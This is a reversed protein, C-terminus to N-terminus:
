RAQRSQIVIGSNKMFEGRWYVGGSWGERQEGGFYFRVRKVQNSACLTNVMAYAMLREEEETMGECAQWFGESLHCLLTDGQVAFGMIDADSLGQPLVAELRSVQDYTQSGLMLQGLLYRPNQIEYCPVPRDSQRLRSGEAFYLKAYGLLMASFDGRRQLGEGFHIPMQETYLSIPTVSQIWEDGIRVKVATLEPVCTTLTYTLSAMLASRTVNCELLAENLGSQFQLTAVRGGGSALNEVSPEELLLETLRPLTPVDELYQAGQVLAALLGLTMQSPTQGEFTITRVEPLIGIGSQTPFYLTMPLTLRQAAPDEGPNLMALSAQNWIADLDDGTRRTLTGVPLTGYVDLSVQSGSALINVYQIDPFETLTNTIAQCVQYFDKADLQRCSPGLNVTCVDRSVEVPNNGTLTLEVGGGLPAVTDNGPHKILARVVTEAGHRATSFTLTQQQAILRTGDRRPLFLTAQAEYEMAADGFPAEYVSAAQPLEVVTQSAVPVGNQCGTLMLLCLALLMMRKLM